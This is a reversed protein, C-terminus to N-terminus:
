EERKRVYLTALSLDLEIQQCVGNRYTYYSKDGNAVYMVYRGDELRAFPQYRGWRESFVQQRTDPPQFYAQLITYYVPAQVLFTEGECSVELADGKPTIITEDRLRGSRYNRVLARRLRGGEFEAEYTFRLTLTFGFSVDIEMDSRLIEREGNQERSVIMQGIPEESRIVDYALTQGEASGPFGVLGWLLSLLCLFIPRM